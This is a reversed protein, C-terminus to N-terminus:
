NSSTIPMRSESSRSIVGVSGSPGAVLSLGGAGFALPVVLQRVIVQNMGQSFPQVALLSFARSAGLQPQGFTRGDPSVLGLVPM